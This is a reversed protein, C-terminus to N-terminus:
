RRRKLIDAAAESLIEHITKIRRADVWALLESKKFMIKKGHKYHPISKQSAKEYITAVALNLLAAAEQVNILYNENKVGIKEEILLEILLQRLLVKFEDKEIRSLVNRRPSEYFIHKLPLIRVSFHFNV